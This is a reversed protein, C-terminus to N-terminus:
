QTIKVQVIPIDFKHAFPFIQESSHGVTILLDFRENSKLLNQIDDGEMM